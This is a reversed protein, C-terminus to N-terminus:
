SMTPRGDPSWVADLGTALKTAASGDAGIVSVGSSNFAIRTGDPSWHANYLFSGEAVSTLRTQNSGDANMVYVQRSSDPMDGRTSIFAIRSGDPSWEPAFDGNAGSKNETLRTQGAGDANMVYIQEIGYNGLRYPVGEQGPVPTLIWPADRSSVFAIRKGDPSWTPTYDDFPDNTLNTQGSGDASIVFIDRSAGAGSVFAIHSGDPAWVPFSGQALKALGSGDPNIVYLDCAGETGSPCSSFAIKGTAPVGAEGGRTVSGIPGWPEWWTRM